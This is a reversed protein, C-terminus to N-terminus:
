KGLEPQIDNIEAGRSEMDPKIVFDGSSVLACPLHKRPLTERYVVLRRCWGSVGEDLDTDEWNGGTM